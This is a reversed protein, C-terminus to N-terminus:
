VSTCQLITIYDDNHQLFQILPLITIYDDNHQLLIHFFYLNSQSGIRYDVLGLIYYLGTLWRPM